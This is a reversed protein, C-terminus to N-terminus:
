LLQLLRIIGYLSGASGIVVCLVKIVGDVTLFRKQIPQVVTKLEQVDQKINEIIATHEGQTRSIVCLNEDISELKNLIHSDLNDCSVKNRKIIKLQKPTSM